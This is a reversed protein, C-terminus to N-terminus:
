IPLGWDKMLKEQTYRRHKVKKVQDADVFSVFGGCSYCLCRGDCDISVPEGCQECIKQYTLTGAKYVAKPESM